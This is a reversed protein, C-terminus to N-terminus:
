SERLDFGVDSLPTDASLFRPSLTPVQCHCEKLETCLTRGSRPPMEQLLFVKSLSKPQRFDTENSLFM